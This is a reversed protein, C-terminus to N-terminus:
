DDHRPKESAHALGNMVLDVMHQDALAYVVHKGNRTRRVIDDARLVRLRQSMTTISEGEMKALDGVCASAQTLRAIIRMRAPEGMARFIRSCREIEADTAPLALPKGAEHEGASCADSHSTKPVCDIYWCKFLYAVTNGPPLVLM